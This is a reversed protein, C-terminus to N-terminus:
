SEGKVEKVKGRPGKCLSLGKFDQLLMFCFLADQIRLYRAFKLAHVTMNNPYKLFTVETKHYM